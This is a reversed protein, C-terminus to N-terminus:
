PATVATYQYDAVLHWVGDKKYQFRVYVTGGSAPLGTKTYSTQSSPLKGTTGLDKAGPSSGFILKYKGVSFGNSM